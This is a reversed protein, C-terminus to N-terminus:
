LGASRLQELISEDLYSLCLTSRIEDRMEQTNVVINVDYNDLYNRGHVERITQKVADVDSQEKCLVFIPLVPTSPFAEVIQERNM